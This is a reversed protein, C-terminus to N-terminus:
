TKSYPALTALVHEPFVQPSRRGRILRYRRGGIQELLLPRLSVSCDATPPPSGTPASPHTGGPYTGGSDPPTGPEVQGRQSRRRLPGALHRDGCGERFLAPLTSIPPRPSQVGEVGNMQGRGQGQAIVQSPHRDVVVAQGRGRGGAPHVDYGWAGSVDYGRRRRDDRRPRRDDAPGLWDVRAWLSDGAPGRRDVRSSLRDDGRRRRDDPLRIRHVSRSLADDAPRLLGDIRPRRDDRHWRHDDAPWLRNVKALPFRRGALSSQRRAFSSRRRALSSGRQGAAITPPVSVICKSRCLM